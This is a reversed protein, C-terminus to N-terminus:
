GARQAVVAYFPDPTAAGFLAALRDPQAPVHVVAEPETFGGGSSTRVSAFYQQVLAVREAESAERWAQIAKEFFMRNSFSVIAVGGPRLVRHIETFVAVPDQLYQVSVACLVADFTADELPLQPGKNLNQVFFRDLRPNRALEAANMGHGEVHAFAMEDPLHSVWSSMLDLLRTGPRLRERYLVQLRGIFGEDVHRVFRPQSYFLADDDPNLKARAEPSLM